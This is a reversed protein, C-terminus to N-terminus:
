ADPVLSFCLKNFSKTGKYYSSLLVFNQYVNIEHFCVISHASHLCRLVNSKEENKLVYFGKSLGIDSNGM